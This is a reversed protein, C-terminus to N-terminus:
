HSAIHCPHGGLQSAERRTPMEIIVLAGQEAKARMPPGGPQRCPRGVMDAEGVSFDVDAVATGVFGQTDKLVHQLSDGAHRNVPPGCEPIIACCRGYFRHGCRHWTPWGRMCKSGM